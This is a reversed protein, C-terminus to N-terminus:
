RTLGPLPGDRRVPNPKRHESTSDVPVGLWRFAACETVYNEYFQVLHRAVIKWQTRRNRVQLVRSAIKSLQGKIMCPINHGHLVLGARPRKSHQAIHLSNQTHQFGEGVYRLINKKLSNDGIRSRVLIIQCLTPLILCPTHSNSILRWCPNPNTNM